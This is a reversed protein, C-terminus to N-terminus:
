QGLEELLKPLLQTELSLMNHIEPNADYALLTQKSVNHLHKNLLEIMETHLDWSEIDNVSDRKIKGWRAQVAVMSTHRGAMRTNEVLLRDVEATKAALATAFTSPANFYAQSLGRHEPIVKILKNTEQIHNMGLLKLKAEDVNQQLHDLENWILMSLPVVFLISILVFKQPYKLTHMLRIGSYLLPDADINGQMQFIRLLTISLLLFAIATFLSISALDAYHEPVDQMLMGMGIGTLTLLALLMIMGHTLISSRQQNRHNLAILISACLLFGLATLPSMQGPHPSGASIGQADFLLNDIGTHLGFINQFLALAALVAVAGAVITRISRCSSQTAPVSCAMAMLLFSLATNFTMNAIGPLWVALAAHDTWWGLLATSSILIVSATCTNKINLIMGTRKILLSQGAASLYHFIRVLDTYFM